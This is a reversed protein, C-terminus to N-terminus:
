FGLDACFRKIESLSTDALSPLRPQGDPIQEIQEYVGSVTGTLMMIYIMLPYFIERCAMPMQLLPWPM